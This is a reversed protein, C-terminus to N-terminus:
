KKISIYMPRRPIVPSVLARRDAWVENASDTAMVKVNIIM